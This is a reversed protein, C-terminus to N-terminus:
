NRELGGENSRSGATNRKSGTMFLGLEIEDIGKNDFGAVIEGEYMVYLRDSLALIEDLDASVLLIGTGSDRLDILQKHISEIAGVDVGRTPQGAVLLEPSASLERAIVVKQMNGGSLTRVLDKSSSVKIGFEEILSWSKEEIAKKKLIGHNSLEESLYNSVVLNEEVTCDKSVGVLLRDEPIHSIGLNRRALISSKNIVKDLMLIQGSQVPRMGTIVEILETQGNGEVGAIGVIEGKRVHLNVKKLCDLGRDNKTCLDELVLVSGTPKAEPRVVTLVVDRGVMLGALETVNTESTKVHGTVKGRRMVTINDSVAMVEKLKHTILVVSCGNSSMGRIINFLEEIESPTLVATPEDLILIKAGRYLAKIIEVRQMQGVSLSHVPADLDISFGYQKLLQEVIRRSKKYDTLRAHTPTKGLIINELVTLSPVLMFHQHVMGIGLDIADQPGNIRAPEGNIEISGSDPQILGYLINMLTSKGAGNEGILGHIEGLSVQFDVDKNAVVGPFEKTIGQMKIAQKPAL